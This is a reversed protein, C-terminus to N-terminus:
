LIMAATAPSYFAESADRDAFNNTRKSPYPEVGKSEAASFAMENNLHSKTQKKSQLCTTKICFIM